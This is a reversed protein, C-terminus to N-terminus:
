VRNTWEFEVVCLKEPVAMWERMMGEYVAKFQDISGEPVVETSFSLVLKHAIRKERMLRGLDQLPLRHYPCIADITIFPIPQVIFTLEELTHDVTSVFTHPTFDDM